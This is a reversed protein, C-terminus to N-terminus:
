EFEINHNKLIEKCAAIGAKKRGYFNGYENPPRRNIKKFEFECAKVNGYVSFSGDEYAGRITFSGIENEIKYDNIM